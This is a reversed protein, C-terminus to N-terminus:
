KFKKQKVPGRPIKRLITSDFKQYLKKVDRNGKTALYDVEREYREYLVPLTQLCLFVTYLLSLTSFYTGVVSLIWLCVIVEFFSTLDKGSSIEYFKLLFWNVKAFWYKFSSEPLRIENINPPSRSKDLPFDEGAALRVPVSQRSTQAQFSADTM